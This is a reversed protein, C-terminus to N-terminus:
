ESPKVSVIRLRRYDAFWTGDRFLKPRLAAIADALVATRQTTPLDEFYYWKFQRIWNEMGQEGELSTPRDYLHAFQVELGVAALLSTYEPISPFFTRRPPISGTHQQLATEIAQLIQRINGHGGFEAVLRGQPKLARAINNAAAAADLIWHLAANSFVADFENEFQMAVASQLTFQLRPYNQRAQGIMEPSADLGTVDAGAAAIKATLQGTGCGLDLIREGVKPALLDLLAEGYQWVFSHRSEYLETDWTPSKTPM